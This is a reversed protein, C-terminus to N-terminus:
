RSTLTFPMEIQAAKLMTRAEEPGRCHYDREIFGRSSSLHLTKDWLELIKKKIM